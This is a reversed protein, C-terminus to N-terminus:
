KNEPVPVEEITITQGKYVLVDVSQQYYLIHGPAKSPESAVSVAQPGFNVVHVKTTM